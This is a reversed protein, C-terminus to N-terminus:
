PTYLDSCRHDVHVLPPGAPVLYLLLQEPQNSVHQKVSQNSVTKMGNVLDNTPSFTIMPSLKLLWKMSLTILKASFCLMSDAHKGGFEACRKCGNSTM